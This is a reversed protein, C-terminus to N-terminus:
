QGKKLATDIAALRETIHPHSHHYASYLPDVNLSAKNTEELKLLAERLEKGKGQQVAFGDAQYEFRRSVVNTIFGIVEDVPAVVFQFLVFAIFAPRSKDFGFSEFLGPATRMGAFLLFNALTIFQSMVFNIPTHRLKWHGLEHALVAVVQEESCEKILTDFLVIRKNNFFGYMYANSHGSRKSGDMTYLKKLPFSLSGALAEIKDRLSGQPLLEYKNFLPAIVVPYITLFFLSVGLVFAWLQLPVWPGARQLIYTFAAVLPPIFVAGLVCSKVLDSFFLGLTQKNFGHRQEIVFTSYLTWPLSLVLNILSSALMFAVTHVIENDEVIAALPQPLWSPLSYWLWPVIRLQLWLVTEVLNYIGHWFGFWWKDVSYAQAEDYLKRTFLGKLSAPPDPLKIAKLQRMDLYTHLINVVVIFTLVLQLWPLEPMSSSSGLLSSLDVAM